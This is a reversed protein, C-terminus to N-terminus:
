RAAAHEEVAVAVEAPGPMSAIEAAIRRAADAFSPEDLVRRIAAGVTDSDVDPPMVVVAAGASEVRAANEFQDAGRPVIVLPLGHALAALTSGSGGHAVVAACSPLVDAQPVFPEVRVHAPAPGLAAPDVDRGTTVLAAPVDDLAALLRRLLEPENFVTGLTVYVLPRGLAELWAPASGAGPAAPALRIHKGPPQEWALSPPCIDVYLGDFAGAYPPPELGVSRWLPLVADETRRLAALPIMAGFSHNVAPIGLAASVVPAAIDSSEFVLVDPRWDACVRLLGDLKPPAHGRGFLRPYIHERRALPPMADLEAQFPELGRSADAHSTGAALAAYGENAVHEHFSEHTAVALEHGRRRLEHALPLMPRVHGDLPTSTLLVRVRRDDRVPISEAASGNVFSIAM